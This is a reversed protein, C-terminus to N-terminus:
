YWDKPVLAEGHRWNNRGVAETFWADPFEAHDVVIVQLKGKLEEVTDRLLKFIRHVQEQSQDSLDHLGRDKQHQKESPYFAQTPQDLLLMRPVPRDQAIFFRQLALLTVIHYGVWSKGGGIDEENLHVPGRPDKGIVTLQVPDLRVGNKSYSLRLRQAMQTMDEAVFALSNETRTRTAETGLTEELEEVEEALTDVESRIASLEESSAVPHENLFEAARGLVFAQQQIEARGPSGQRRQSFLTKLEQDVADLEERTERIQGDVEEIAGDLQPPSAASNVAQASVRDLEQRLEAIAPTTQHDSSGCVPCIDSGAEKPLLDLSQLRAQHQQAEFDYEEALRKHDLLARRAIRAERLKDALQDKRSQLEAISAAAGTMAVADDEPTKQLAAQLLVRPDADDSSEAEQLLGVDKAESILLDQRRQLDASPSELDSLRRRAARLARQQSKLDRRQRILDSDVSGLFYPLTDRIHFEKAESQGHFLHLPDAILRQPQFVYSAAHRLNARVESDSGSAELDGIGIMGGLKKIVTRINTTQRVESPDPASERGTVIMAKDLAKQDFDPRQRAVFVPLGDVELRLGYWGISDLEPEKSVRHKKSGLCYDVISVLASKGTESVGPIVNLAGPQFEVEHKRKGDRHYLVVSRLQM